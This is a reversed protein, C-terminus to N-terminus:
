RIAYNRWWKWASETLRDAEMLFAADKEKDIRRGNPTVIRITKLIRAMVIAYSNLIPQIKKLEDTSLRYHDYAWHHTPCLIIVDRIYPIDAGEYEIGNFINAPIVHAKQLCRKEDCLLCKHSDAIVRLKTKLRANLVNKKRELEGAMKLIAKANKIQQPTYNKTEAPSKAM